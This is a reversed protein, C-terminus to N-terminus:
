QLISPGLLRTEATGTWLFTVDHQSTIFSEDPSCSGLFSPMVIGRLTRLQRETGFRKVDWFIKNEKQSLNRSCKESRSAGVLVTKLM